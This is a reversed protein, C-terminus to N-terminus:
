NVGNKSWIVKTREKEEYKFVKEVRHIKTRTGDPNLIMTYDPEEESLDIDNLETADEWLNHENLYDRYAETKSSKVSQKKANMKNDNETM